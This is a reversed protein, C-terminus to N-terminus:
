FIIFLYCWNSNARAIWFSSTNTSSKMFYAHSISSSNQSIAHDIRIDFWYYKNGILVLNWTHAVPGSKNIYAGSITRADYGLHWEDRLRRAQEQMQVPTSLQEGDTQLVADKEKGLIDEVELYREVDDQIRVKLAKVDKASTNSKKRFSVKLENLNFTFPRFFYDPEVDLAVALATLVTSNPMMKGAEYKSIAQKSVSNGIMSALKEMSIKKLVRAQRLRQSFVSLLEAM